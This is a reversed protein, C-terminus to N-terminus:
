RTKPHRETRAATGSPAAGRVMPLALAALGALGALVCGLHLADISILGQLANRESFPAFALVDVHMISDLAVHSYAGLAAGTVAAGVGIAPEAALYRAQAPSLRSNWWRLLRECLLRGPWVSVLVVITAGILTHFFRHAPDGTLVFNAIPELDILGNALGFVTFSMRRGLMAKLAAGPGLHFPTIPM